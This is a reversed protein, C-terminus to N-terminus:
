LLIKSNSHNEGLRKGIKSRSINKCHEKSFEKEKKKGKRNLSKLKESLLKKEEESWKNGYNPNRDGSNYLKIQKKCKLSKYDRFRINTNKSQDIYIKGSPSTIKYIGIM